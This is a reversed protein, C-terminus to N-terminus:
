KWWVIYKYIIKFINVQSCIWNPDKSENARHHYTSSTNQQTSLPQQQQQQQYSYSLYVTSGEIQMNGNTYQILSKADQISPFEVFAFGRSEGTARDRVLKVEEV